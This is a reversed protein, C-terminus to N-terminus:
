IKNAKQLLENAANNYINKRMYNEDKESLQSVVKSKLELAEKVLKSNSEIIIDLLYLALRHKDRKILEESRAMIKEDGILSNIEKAVDHVKEPLLNTPNGDYWGTYRRYTGRIAFDLCGYFQALYPSEELHKPLKITEIMKELSINNNLSAVVSEHIYKTVEKYAETLEQFVSEEHIYPGHGPFVLKPKLEQIHQMMESWEKAFRIDKAPNGINPFSRIIFDGTFLVDDEKIHVICQDDTEGMGHTLQFTKGGLTFTYEQDFVIDPYVFSEMTENSEFSTAFQRKNILYHFKDLETYKTLRRIVNRHAIIEAGAEKFVRAGGVHDIHGHTYILYCVPKDTIQEIDSLIKKAQVPSMTSDIVVVGEDTIVVGVNGFSRVFYYNEIVKELTIDQSQQAFKKMDKQLGKISM